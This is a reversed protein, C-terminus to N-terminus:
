QGLLPIGFPRTGKPTSGCGPYLGKGLQWQPFLCWRLGWFVAVPPNEKERIFYFDGGGGFPQYRLPPTTLANTGEFPRMGRIKRM